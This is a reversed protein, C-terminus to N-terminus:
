FLSGQKRSCEASKKLFQFDMRELFCSTSYLLIMSVVPQRKLEKSETFACDVDYNAGKLADAIADALRTEDEAILIKM